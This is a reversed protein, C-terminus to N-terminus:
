DQVHKAEESLARCKEGDCSYKTMTDAATAEDPDDLERGRLWGAGGCKECDPAGQIHWVREHPARAKQPNCKPCWQAQGPLHQCETEKASQLEACVAIMLRGNPTTPDFARTDKRTEYGFSPALREYADHFRRALSEADTTENAGRPGMILNWHRVADTKRAKYFHPDDPLNFLCAEGDVDELNTCAGFSEWVDDRLWRQWLEAPSGCLRCPLLRWPTNSEVKRFRDKGPPPRRHVPCDIGPERLEDHWTCSCFQAVGKSSPAEGGPCRASRTHVGGGYNGCYCVNEKSPATM